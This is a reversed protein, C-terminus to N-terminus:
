GPNNIFLAKWTRPYREYYIQCIIDCYLWKAMKQQKGCPFPTLYCFVVTAEPDWSRNPEVPLIYCYVFALANIVDSLLQKAFRKAINYYMLRYFRGLKRQRYSAELFFFQILVGNGTLKHEQAYNSLTSLFATVHKARKKNCISHSNPLRFELTSRHWRKVKKSISGDQKSLELYQKVM